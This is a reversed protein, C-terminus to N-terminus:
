FNFVGWHTEDMHFLAESSFVRCTFFLSTLTNKEISFVAARPLYFGSPFSDSSRLQFVNQFFVDSVFHARLASSRNRGSKRGTTSSWTEKDLFTSSFGGHISWTIWPVPGLFLGTM